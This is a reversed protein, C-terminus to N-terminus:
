SQLLVFKNAFTHLKANNPSKLVEVNGSKLTLLDVVTM